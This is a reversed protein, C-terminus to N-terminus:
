QNPLNVTWGQTWNEGPGFAGRYSTPVFFGDNPADGGTLVNSGASPLFGDLQPVADNNGAGVNFFASVLYPDGGADEFTGAACGGLISNTFSLREGQATASALGFTEADNLNLCRDAYGTVVINTLNAGGGRRLRIGEGGAGAASGVLTMNSFQPQTIPTTTSTPDTNDLEIGHPDSTFSGPTGQWALMFQGKGGYGQAMDYCDDAMNSCVTHRVNVTGGFWEFGDDLGNDVQVYEIKTGSGVGLLTLANLEEDPAVEQGAYLIRVYRLRGSNDELQDGGYTISPVAEFQCLQGGTAENCVSRGALLVGAWSGAEPTPGTFTIPQTKTGEAFIKGGQLVAIFNAQTNEVAGQVTVGPHITLSGGDEVSVQGRVIYKKGAPLILDNSISNPLACDNGEATTGAPCQAVPMNCEDSPLVDLGLSPLLDFAAAQLGSEQTPTFAVSIQGCSLSMDVTGVSTSTPTGQANFLGGEVIEVPIDEYDFVGDQPEFSGVTWLQNGAQDYTFFAFFFTNVQPIYDVLLGKNRAPGDGFVGWSGDFSENIHVASAQGIMVLSCAAALLSKRVNLM